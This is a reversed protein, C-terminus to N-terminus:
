ANIETVTYTDLELLDNYDTLKPIDISISPLGESTDTFRAGLAKVDPLAGEDLLQDLAQALEAECAQEHAISLLAVVTRCATRLDTHECLTDYARRYALRPFLQDRYVLGALAAPKRKLSHIVHHYNVVHGRQDGKTPWGRPLTELLSTGLFLELRDDYLHM